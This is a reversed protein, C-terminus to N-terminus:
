PTSGAPIGRVNRQPNIADVSRTLRELQAKIAQLEAGTSVVNGAQDRTNLTTSVNDVHAILQALSQSISTVDTKQWAPPPLGEISKKLDEVSAALVGIQASLSSNTGDTQAQLTSALRDVSASLDDASRKLEDVLTPLGSRDFDITVGKSLLERDTADLQIGAQMLKKDEPAIKVDQTVIHLTIGVAGGITLASALVANHGISQLWQAFSSDRAEDAKDEGDPAAPRDEARGTLAQENGSTVRQARPWEGFIPFSELVTHEGLMRYSEFQAETFFQDATSEQPFAGGPLKSTAAYRCVDLPEDGRLVPKILIIEGDTQGRDVASYGITGIRIRSAAARPAVLPVPLSISIGFDIRIKRIANELDGYAYQPDAAADVVVIRRCRRRVMEYLGLNEFHGGDSLYVFPNNDSSAAFAERLLPGIGIVPGRRGLNESTDFRPSPLWWGLRVNFLAMVFAVLTSTHYGMNPSAAAGSITMARGLTIDAYRSTPVYGITSSGTYGPSVIFSTAKRQQWALRRKSPKALNLATNVVHYLRSPPPSETMPWNDKDDFNTFWQPNRHPNTAGLYARVLRNGYLGHLSFTNAGIATSALCAFAVIGVCSVFLHVCSGQTLNELYDLKTNWAQANAAGVAANVAYSLVILLVVIFAAAAIQLVRTGAVAALSPARKKLTATTKSWYGALSVAIGMLGGGIGLHRLTGHGSEDANAAGGGALLWPVAYIMISFMGIWVLVAFLSYASARAWWERYAEMGPPKDNGTRNRREEVIGRNLHGTVGAQLTTAVWLGLMVVPFSWAVYDLVVPPKPNAHTALHAFYIVLALYCPAFAVGSGVIALLVWPRPLHWYPAIGRWRRWCYSLAIAAIQVVAGALAFWLLSAVNLTLGSAHIAVRSLLVAALALPAFSAGLFWDPIESASRAPESTMDAIMYGHSLAILAAAAILLSITCTNTCPQLAGLLLLRPVMVAAVLLPVFVLWNLLLNRAFTMLLTFLDASVGWVPSLYNSYARLNRIAAPEPEHPANPPGNTPPPPHGLAILVTDLSTRQIWSTLWSGIYGGGSVTSLYHFKRLMGRKALGQLVGLCFTASRIGGGSFCLAMRSEEGHLEHIHRRLARERAEISAARDIWEAGAEPHLLRFEEELMACEEKRIKDTLADYPGHDDTDM